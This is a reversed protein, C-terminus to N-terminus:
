KVEKKGYKCILEVDIKTISKFLDKIKVKRGEFHAYNRRLVVALRAHSLIFKILCNEIRKKKELIGFLFMKGWEEESEVEVGWNEILLRRLFYFFILWLRVNLFIIYFVRMAM